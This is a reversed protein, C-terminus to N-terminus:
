VNIGKITRLSNMVNLKTGPIVRNLNEPGLNLYPLTVNSNKLIKEFKKEYEKRITEYKETTAFGKEEKKLEFECIKNKSTIIGIKELSSLWLKMWQTESTDIDDKTILFEIQIQLNERQQINGPFSIRNIKHEISGVLIEHLDIQIPNSFTCNGILLTQNIKKNIKIEDKKMCKLLIIPSTCWFYKKANYEKNKIIIKKLNNKSDFIFKINKANKIIKCRKKNIKRQIGNIFEGFGNRKPYLIYHKSYNRM